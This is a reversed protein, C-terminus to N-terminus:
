SIAAMAGMIAVQNETGEEILDGITEHQETFYTHQEILSELHALAHEDSLASAPSDYSGMFTAVAVVAVGM